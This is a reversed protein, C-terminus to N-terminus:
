LDKKKPRNRLLSWNREKDTVCFLIVFGVRRLDQNTDVGLLINLTHLHHTGLPLTQVQLIHPSPPFQFLLYHHSTQTHASHDGEEQHFIHLSRSPTGQDLRLNISYQLLPHVEPHLGLIDQFQLPTEQRLGPIDQHQTELSLHHTVLFQLHKIPFHLSPAQSLPASLDWQFQHRLSLLLLSLEM